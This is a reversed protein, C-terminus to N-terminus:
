DGGWYTSPKKVEVPFLVPGHGDLNVVQGEELIRTVRKASRNPTEILLSDHVQVLISARAPLSKAVRLTFLNVIDAGGGQIPLNCTETSKMGSLFHRRRHLVPTM